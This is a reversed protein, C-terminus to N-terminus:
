AFLNRNSRESNPFGDRNSNAGRRYSSRNSSLILNNTHITFDNSIESIRPTVIMNTNSYNRHRNSYVGVNNPDDVEEQPPNQTPIAEFFNSNCNPCKPPNGKKRLWRSLCETHFLHFCPTLSVESKLLIFNDLCITCSSSHQSMEKTFTISKLMTDFLLNIKQIRDHEHSKKGLSSVSEGAITTQPITRSKKTFIFIFVACIICAILIVGISIYLAYNPGKEQIKIEIEFPSFEFQKTSYYYFEINNVNEVTIEYNDIEILKKIIEANNLQVRMYILSSIESAKNEIVININTNKQFANRFIYKCFVNRAGYAGNNEPLTILIEKESEMLISSSGCYIALLQESKDDNCQEFYTWWEKSLQQNQSSTQRGSREDKKCQGNRWKCLNSDSFSISCNFCDNYTSCLDDAKVMRSIIIFISLVPIFLM